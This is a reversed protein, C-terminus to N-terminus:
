SLSLWDPHYKCWSCDAWLRIQGARDGGRQVLHVLGGMLSWHVFKM